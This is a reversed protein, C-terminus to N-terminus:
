GFLEIRILRESVLMAGSFSGRSFSIGISFWWRKPAINTKPLTFPGAMWFCVQLFELLPTLQEMNKGLKQLATSIAEPWEDGPPLGDGPLGPDM